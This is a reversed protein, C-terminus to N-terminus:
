LYIFLLNAFSPIQSAKTIQKIENDVIYCSFKKAHFANFIGTKTNERTEILFKTKPNFNVIGNVVSEEFGEVDIKVFNPVGYQTTLNEFTDTEVTDTLESMKKEAFEKEFSGTRGGTKTDRYFTLIEKKNSIGIPLCTINKCYNINVNFQLFAFNKFDPEFAVVKGKDGIAESFRLAYQGINSGIDFILDDKHLHPAINKWISAEYAIQSQFLFTLHQAKEYFLKKSFGKLKKSVIKDKFFFTIIKSLISYVISQM